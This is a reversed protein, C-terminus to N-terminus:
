CRRQERLGAHVNPVRRWIELKLVRGALGVLKGLISALLDDNDLEESAATPSGVALPLETLQM